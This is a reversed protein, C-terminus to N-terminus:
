QDAFPCESGGKMHHRGMLCSIKFIRLYCYCEMSDAWWENGLGSQLLVASTGEKLEACQEKLLGMQKQDTHHLRAIIGPYTRVLSALNRLITLTFSM